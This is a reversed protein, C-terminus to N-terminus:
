FSVYKTNVFKIDVTILFRCSVRLFGICSAKDKLKYWSDTSNTLDLATLPLRIEGLFLNKGFRDWDWVSVWLTSQDIDAQSLKTQTNSMALFHITSKNGFKKSV